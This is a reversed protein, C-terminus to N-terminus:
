RPAPSGKVQHQFTTHEKPGLRGLKGSRICSESLPVSCHQHPLAREIMGVTKQYWCRETGSTLYALYVVPYHLSSTQVFQQRMGNNLSVHLSFPLVHIHMAFPQDPHCPVSFMIMINVTSCGSQCVPQSVVSQSQQSYFQYASTGFPLLRSFHYSGLWNTRNVHHM